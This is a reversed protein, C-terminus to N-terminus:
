RGLLQAYAKELYKEYERVYKCYNALEYKHNFEFERSERDRTSEDEPKSEQM